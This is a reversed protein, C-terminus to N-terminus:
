LFMLGSYFNEVNIAYQCAKSFAHGFCTEHFNDESGLTYCKVIYILASTIINLNFSEDKVYTIIKIRLGYENLLDNFNKAL